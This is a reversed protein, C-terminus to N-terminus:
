RKNDIVLEISRVRSAVEGEAYLEPLYDIYGSKYATSVSNLIEDTFIKGSLIKTIFDDYISKVNKLLNSYLLEIGTQDSNLEVELREIDENAQKILEEKEKVQNSLVDKQLTLNLQTNDLIFIQKNKEADVSERQSKQYSSVIFDIIFHTIVLPLMGFVFILWFEAHTVVEWIRLNSEKGVLLSKIEDTNIAVMTSVLIDFVLLGVWFTLANVWRNKSGILKLNSLLIPILFFLGAMVGFLTGQSAFIKIIANADVLQPIGPNIGAELSNRIDNGEFFVKYMASAFFISLYYVFVVLGIIALVNGVNWFKKIIFTSELSNKEIKIKEIENNVQLIGKEGTMTNGSELLSKDNKLNSVKSNLQRVEIDNKAKLSNIEIHKETEIEEKKNEYVSNIDQIIVSKRSSLTDDTAFMKIQEKIDDYNAKFIELSGLSSKSNEYGQKKYLDANINAATFVLNSLQQTFSDVLNKPLERKSIVQEMPNASNINVDLQHDINYKLREFEALLQRYTDIDDSVQINEVNNNSANYSYNYSGNISIKNDILCFKHHMMGREDGTEFAHININSDKLIQKVTENQSNSSLIIDIRLNRDKAAIIANAIDRDTFWAMALFINQSASQIESIIRQKIETGNTLIDNM